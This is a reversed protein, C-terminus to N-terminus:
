LVGVSVSVGVGAHRVRLLAWLKQAVMWGVNMLIKVARSNTANIGWEMLHAMMTM